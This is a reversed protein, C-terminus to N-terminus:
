NALYITKKQILDERFLTRHLCSARSQIQFFSCIVQFHQDLYKALDEPVTHRCEVCKAGTSPKYFIRMQINVM